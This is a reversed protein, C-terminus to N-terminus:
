LTSILNGGFVKKIPSFCTNFRPERTWTMYNKSKGYMKIYPYLPGTGESVILEADKHDSAMFIGHNEALYTLAAHNEFPTFPMNKAKFLIIM